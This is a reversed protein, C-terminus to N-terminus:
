RASRWQGVALALHEVEDGAARRVTLYRLAQEKRRVRDLLV